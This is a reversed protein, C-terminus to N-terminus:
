AVYWDWPLEHYRQAKTTTSMINVKSKDSASVKPWITSVKPSAGFDLVILNAPDLHSNPGSKRSNTSSKSSSLPLGLEDLSETSEERKIQEEIWEEDSEEGASGRSSRWMSVELSCRLVKVEELSLLVKESHEQNAQGEQSEPRSGFSRSVKSTDRQCRPSHPSHLSSSEMDVSEYPQFDDSYLIEPSLKLSLGDETRINVSEQSRRLLLFWLYMNKVSFGLM